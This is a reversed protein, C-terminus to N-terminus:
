RTAQRPRHQDLVTDYVQELLQTREAIDFNQRVFQYAKAGMTRALETDSLLKLFAAALQESNDSDVTFGSEGEAVAEATAGTSAAVVPIGLAQAELLVLGLGEVDGDPARRSPLALLRATAIIRQTRDPSQAGHWMIGGIARAKAIVLDRLPGDGVIHLQADNKVSRVQEFAELVKDLGKKAM